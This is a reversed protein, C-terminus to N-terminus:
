KMVSKGTITQVELALVVTRDIVPHDEPLLNENGYHRLIHSLGRYKDHGQLFVVKGTGMVSEYAMTCKSPDDDPVLKHCGDMEFFVNPNAQLLDIKKGALASHMYLTLTEGEVQEGFNLPVMYPYEGDHMCVRCVDCRQVIELIEGPDTVQRDKRRM